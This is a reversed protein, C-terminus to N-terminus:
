QTRAQSSDAAAARGERSAAAGPAAAVLGSIPDPDLSDDLDRMYREQVAGIREAHPESAAASILQPLPSFKSGSTKAQAGSATPILASGCDEAAEDCSHVPRLQPRARLEAAAYVYGNAKDILAVLTRMSDEEQVNLTSYSVLGFDEVLECLSRTLRHYKALRADQLAPM